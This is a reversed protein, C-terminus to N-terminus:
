QFPEQRETFEPTDAKHALEVSWRQHVIEYVRPHVQIGGVVLFGRALNRTDRQLRKHAQDVMYVLHAAKMGAAEIDKQLAARVCAAAQSVKQAILKGAQYEVKQVSADFEALRRDISDIFEEIANELVLQNLIVITIAPDDSDLHLLLSGLVKMLLVGVGITFRNAL